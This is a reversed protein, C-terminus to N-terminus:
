CGSTLTCGGVGDVVPDLSPLDVLLSFGEDEMELDCCCCPSLLWPLLGLGEAGRDLSSGSLFGNLLIPFWVASTLKAGDALTLRGVGLLDDM